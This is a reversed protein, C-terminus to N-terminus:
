PFVPGMCRDAGTYATWGIRGGFLRHTVESGATEGGYTSRHVEEHAFTDMRDRRRMGPTYPHDGGDWFGVRSNTGRDSVDTPHLRTAIPMRDSRAVRSGPKAAASRPRVM